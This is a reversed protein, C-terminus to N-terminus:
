MIIAAIAVIVCGWVAIVVPLILMQIAADRASLRGTNTAIGAQRFKGMSMPLSENDKLRTWLSPVGFGAAVIIVCIAIPIVLSPASLGVFMIALFGLYLGVTAAYLATPLEFNRDAEVQNRAVSSPAKVIRAEGTALQEHLQKSM